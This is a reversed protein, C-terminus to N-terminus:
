DDNEHHIRRTNSFREELDGVVVDAKRLTEVRRHQFDSLSEGPKRGFELDLLDTFSGMIRKILPNDHEIQAVASSSSSSAENPLEAKKDFVNELIWFFCCPVDSMESILGYRCDDCGNEQAKCFEDMARYAHYVDEFKGFGDM